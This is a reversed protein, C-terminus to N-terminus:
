CDHNVHAWVFMVALDSVVFCLPGLSNDCHQSISYITPRVFSERRRCPKHLSIDIMLRGISLCVWDFFFLLLHKKEQRDQGIMHHIVSICPHRTLIETSYNWRTAKLSTVMSSFPETFAFVCIKLKCTYYAKVTISSHTPWLQNFKLYLKPGIAILANINFGQSWVVYNTDRILCFVQHRVWGDDYDRM